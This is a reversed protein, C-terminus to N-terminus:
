LHQVVTMGVTDNVAVELRFIKKQMDETLGQGQLRSVKPQRCEDLCALIELLWTSCWHVNSRLDDTPIVVVLRVHPRRPNHQVNQKRAFHREKSPRVFLDQFHGQAALVVDLLVRPRMYRVLRLLTDLQHQSEVWLIPWVRFNHELVWPNTFVANCGILRKNFRDQTVKCLEILHALELLLCQLDHSGIHILTLQHFDSLGKVLDVAVVRSCNCNLFHPIRQLLEPVFHAVRLKEGHPVCKIKVSVPRNLVLFKQRGRGIEVLDVRGVIEPIRKLIEVLVTIASDSHILHEISQLVNANFRFMSSLNHGVSVQVRIANNVKVLEYKHHLFFAVDVFRAVVHAILIDFLQCILSEYLLSLSHGHLTHLSKTCPQLVHCNRPNRRM